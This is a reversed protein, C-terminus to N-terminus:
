VGKRQKSGHQDVPVIDKFVNLHLLESHLFWVFNQDNPLKLYVTGTLTRVMVDLINPVGQINLFISFLYSIYLVM